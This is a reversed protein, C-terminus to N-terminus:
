TAVKLPLHKRGGECGMGFRFLPYGKSGTNKIQSVVCDSSSLYPTGSSTSTPIRCSNGLHNLSCTLKSKCKERDKYIYCKM